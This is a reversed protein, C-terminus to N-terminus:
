ALDKQSLLRFGKKILLQAGLTIDDIYLAITPGKPRTLLPYAYHINIEATLLCSCISLMPQVNELPTEVALLESECFPFGATQLLERCFDPEACIM